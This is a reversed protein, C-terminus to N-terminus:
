QANDYRVNGERQEIQIYIEVFQHQHQHASGYWYKCGNKDVSWVFYCLFVKIPVDYKLDM